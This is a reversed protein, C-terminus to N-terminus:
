KKWVKLKGIEYFGAAKAQTLEHDREYGVIPHETGLLGVIEPWINEHINCFVNSIGVVKDSKNAIFGGVIVEKEWKAYISVEAEILLSPLFTREKQGEGWANEWATLGEDDQVKKWQSVNVTKSDTEKYFIWSADFLTSFGNYELNLSNFSDKVSFHELPISAIEQDTATDSLTIANPYLPPVETKNIWIDPLFQGIANHTSCILDCWSANNRVAKQLVEEDM